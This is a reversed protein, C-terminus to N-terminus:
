DKRPSQASGHSLASQPWDLKDFMLRQAPTLVQHIRFLMIQRNKQLEFRAMEVRGIQEIVKAEPPNQQRLCESLEEELQHFASWRERQMSLFTEFILDIRDVQIGTLGLRSHIVDDRWWRLPVKPTPKQPPLTRQQWDSTGPGWASAPPRDSFAALCILLGGLRAARRM